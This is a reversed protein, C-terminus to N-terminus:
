EGTIPTYGTKERSEFASCILAIGLVWVTNHLSWPGDRCAARTSDEVVAVNSITALTHVFSLISFLTVITINWPKPGKLLCLLVFFFTFTASLQVMAGLVQTGYEDEGLDICNTNSGAYPNVMFLVSKYMVAFIFFHFFTTSVKGWVSASNNWQNSISRVPNWIEWKERAIEFWSLLFISAPWIGAYFFLTNTHAKMGGYEDRLVSALWQDIAIWYLTTALLLRGTNVISLGFSTVYAFAFFFSLDLQRVLVRWWANTWEDVTDDQFGFSTPRFFQYISSSMICTSYLVLLIWAIKGPLSVCQTYENVIFSIGGFQQLGM